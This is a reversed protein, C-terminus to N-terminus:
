VFYSSFWPSLVWNAHRESEALTVELANWTAAGWRYNIAVNEERHCESRYFIPIKRAGRPVCTSCFYVSAFTTVKNTM